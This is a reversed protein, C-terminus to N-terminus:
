VIPSHNLATNKKMSQLTTFSIKSALVVPNCDDHWYVFELFMSLLYM